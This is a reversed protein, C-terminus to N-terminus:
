LLSQPIPLDDRLQNKKHLVFKVNQPFVDLLELNQVIELVPVKKFEIHEKNKRGNTVTVKGLGKASLRYFGEEYQEKIGKLGSFLNM